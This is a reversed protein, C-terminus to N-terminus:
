FHQLYQHGQKSNIEKSDAITHHQVRHSLFPFTTSSPEILDLYDNKAFLSQRDTKKEGRREREREREREWCHDIHWKIVQKSGLPLCYCLFLLWWARASPVSYFTVSVTKFSRIECLFYSDMSYRPSSLTHQYSRGTISVFYVGPHQIWQSNSIDQLTLNIIHGIHGYDEIFDLM